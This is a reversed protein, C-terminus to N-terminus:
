IMLCNRLWNWRRRYMPGPQMTKTGFFIYLARGGYVRASAAGSDILATLLGMRLESRNWIALPSIFWDVREGPCTSDTAAETSLDADQMHASRLPLLILAILLVLLWRRM